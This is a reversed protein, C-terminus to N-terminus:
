EPLGVSVTDANDRALYSDLEELLRLEVRADQSLNPLDCVLFVAAEQGGGAETDHKSEDAM